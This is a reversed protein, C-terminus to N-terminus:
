GSGSSCCWSGLILRSLYTDSLHRQASVRECTLATSTPLDGFMEEIELRRRYHGMLWTAFRATTPFPWDGLSQASRCAPHVLLHCRISRRQVTLCGITRALCARLLAIGIPHLQTSRCALRSKETCGSVQIPKTQRIYVLQDQLGAPEDPRLVACLALSATKRGTFVPQGQM